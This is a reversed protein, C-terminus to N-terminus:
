ALSTRGGPASSRLNSISSKDLAWGLKKNFDSPFFPHFNGSMFFWYKKSTFLNQFENIMKHYITKIWYKSDEPMDHNEQRWTWFYGKQPPLIIHVIVGPIGQFSRVMVEAAHNCRIAASPNEKSRLWRKELVPVLSQCRLGSRPCPRRQSM